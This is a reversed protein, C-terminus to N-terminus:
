PEYVDWLESNLFSGVNKGEWSLIRVTRGARHHKALENLMEPLSNALEGCPGDLMEVVKGTRIDFHIENTDNQMLPILFPQFWNPTGEAAAAPDGGSLTAYNLDVLFKWWDVIEKHSLIHFDDNFKPGNTLCIRLFAKLDEPLKQRIESEIFAIEEESFGDPKVPKQVNISDLYNNWAKEIEAQTTDRDLTRAGYANVARQNGQSASRDLDAGPNCGCLTPLCAMLALCITTLWYGSKM